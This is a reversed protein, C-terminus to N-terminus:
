RGPEGEVLNGDGDYNPTAFQPEALRAFLQATRAVAEPADLAFMRFSELEGKGLLGQYTGQSKHEAVAWSTVIRYDLKAQFGFTQTRDFSWPGVDERQRTIPWGDLAFPVIPPPETNTAPTGEQVPKPKSEHYACLAIPRRELPTAAVAELALITAAKHHGHTDPVPRHLFVFDYRGDDITRRLVSRVRDLDWVRAEAGLVEAPDKTYHNDLQSLFEVHHVGLVRAAARMEKQRIVPLERRGVTPDTLHLGYLPEALTSYKYGAEGNTIVVIDCTGNLWSSIKYLTGAFATEDDPHAVVCLVRPGTRSADTAFSTCGGLAIVPVPLLLFARLRRALSSM